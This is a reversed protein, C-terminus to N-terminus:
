EEETKLRNILQDYMAIEQQFKDFEDAKVKKTPRDM